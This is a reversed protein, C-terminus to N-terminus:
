AGQRKKRELVRMVKKEIHEAGMEFRKMLYDVPGVEGFHDQSGVREMPVPYREVLSEAVASGLGNIINHNECTVIAGTERACQEVLEGDVPKITFMNVVRASIGREALSEAAKLSEDVLIGSSIITVDIGERLMVAKGIEFESGDEYIQVANRRLLRMYFMGQLDVMQRLADKLMASDAPELVRMTPINRMIGMDEFPMHTGGNYAATIGPDSGVIRVNLRAYACSIFAADYAKRTAFPGFSHAFPVKGTASLGAAIGVMNAEQVGVNFTREPYAEGFPLMGMSSMLDADLVVVREDKSALEMLTSAYADRMMVDETKRKKALKIKM